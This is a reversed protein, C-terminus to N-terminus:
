ASVELRLQDFISLVADRWKMAFRPCNACSKHICGPLSPLGHNRNWRADISWAMSDASALVDGYSGLGTVKVGFGHLRLGDGALRRIIKGASATDQRRCVSGLGVLRERSLDVGQEEYLEWCRLYEELTFGQLVPIVLQGLLERLRVFNTVTFAQHEGVTCGTKELIFDECMWDMPAVWALGLMEREVLQVHRVYEAETITWEGHTSLETFGGSDLAWPATPTPFTRKRKELTRRSIFLPVGLDFWRPTSHHTGLWFDIVPRECARGV